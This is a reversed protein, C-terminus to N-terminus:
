KIKNLFFLNLSNVQIISACLEIAKPTGIMPNIKIPHAFYLRDLTALKQMANKMPDGTETAVWPYLGKLAQIDETLSMGGLM